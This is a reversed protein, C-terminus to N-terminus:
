GVRKLILVDRDRDVRTQVIWGNDRKCKYFAEHVKSKKQGVPCAGFYEREEGIQMQEFNYKNNM